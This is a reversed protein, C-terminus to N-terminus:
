NSNDEQNPNARVDRALESTEIKLRDRHYEIIKILDEKM